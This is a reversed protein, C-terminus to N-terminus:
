GGEPANGQQLLEGFGKEDVVRVGLEQAKKLKSGADEGAVLLDTKRSISGSVRGGRREIEAKAQERSYQAMTGTLVVTKGAFAGATAVAQEPEPRVGAALLRAIMEREGPLALHEHIQRAVEPGVDRVAQLDEVSAAMLADLSGFRRALALATAEGVMRIGLAYIVRRLARTKSSEIAALLNKASLEAFRELGVMQEYTLAYLDAPTKVLGTEILQTSTEVGLGEIDMALRSAFHRLRAVSKAPCVPNPCRTIAEGEERVVQTGCEPCQKPMEWPRSDAPRSELIVRVIEPIVDGARRLFVRDGVRVDKRRVEDENHLTARSVTVGGVYVPTLAAVPTLAGTRGVSAFINEVTTAEEEAPFKWAIAWRPTRSVAGLRRRQDESDVKIVSGDIEYPLEHRKGLMRRYKDQVAEISECLENEPNTRLGLERLRALKEWHSAFELGKTDGVEYFFISLPRQATMKPDLQRLSGAACNRPNVFTPEGAKEREENMKVFDGKNIFVEGRVEFHPPPSGKLQLPVMKITRLNQTVDEGVMGDGRTAGQTFRGNEYTLTVALGDLKPEVVYRVKDEGLLKHVRADFELFEEQTMANALSMMQRRHTVKTFKESPAAGVRRTPSDPTILDPHDQELQELERFLRDYEADSLTPADLVYYRHSAERLRARLEEARQGPNEM